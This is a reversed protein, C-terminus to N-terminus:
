STASGREQLWGGPPTAAHPHKIEPEAAKVPTWQADRNPPEGDGQPHDPLEQWTNFAALRRDWAAFLAADAEDAKANMARIGRIANLAHTEIWDVHDACAEVSETRARTAADQSRFLTTYPFLTDTRTSRPPRRIMLFFVSVDLHM